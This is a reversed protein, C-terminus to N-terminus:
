SLPIGVLALVQLLLFLIRWAWPTKTGANKHLWMAFFSLTVVYIKTCTFATGLSREISWKEGDHDHQESDGVVQWGIPKAYYIVAFHREFQPNLLCSFPQLLDSCQLSDLNFNKYQHASISSGNYKEQVINSCKSISGHCPLSQPRQYTMQERISLYCWKSSAYLWERPVGSLM